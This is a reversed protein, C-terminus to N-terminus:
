RQVWFQYMAAFTAPHATEFQHWCELDTMAVDAPFAAAYTALVAAPLDFGLLTLGNAAIFGAIVPLTLRTEQVHFLLDRCASLSYFDSSRALRGLASSPEAEAILRRAARVGDSTPALGREAIAARAAVVDRRAAESYFGLLMSGGPRLCDLLARWGSLPDALHHLVGSAAIVDFQRGLAPLQLLDAQAYAIRDIGLETTKRQAYGLSALSLDIALVRAGPFLRKMEIPQQGTGCGAILIEPEAGGPVPKLAARPFRNALFAGPDTAPTAPGPTVWRPYPNEEYQRRVAASLPADMRTLRSLAAARVTEEQPEQVQQRLVEQVADPWRRALLRESHPIDLLSAHCAAALTWLVPIDAEAELAASLRAALAVAKETDGAPCDALYDTIFFQRALACWFALADPTLPAADRMAQRLLGHRAAALAREFDLDPIPTAELLRCLLTERGLAGPSPTGGLLDRVPPRQKLVAVAIRALERPRGWGEAIARALLDAPVREPPAQRVAVAFVQRAPDSDSLLGIALDLAEAGHGADLLAQALRVRAGAEGPMLKAVRRRHPLAAEPRGLALLATGMGDHAQAM